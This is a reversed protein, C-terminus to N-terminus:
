HLVDPKLSVQLCQVEMSVVNNFSDPCSGTPRRVETITTINIKSMYDPISELLRSSENNLSQVIFEIHGRDLVDVGVVKYAMDEIVINNKDYEKDFLVFLQGRAMKQKMNAITEDYVWPQVLTLIDFRGEIAILEM